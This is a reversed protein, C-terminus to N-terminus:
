FLTCYGVDQHLGKRKYTFTQMESMSTNYIFVVKNLIMLSLLPNLTLLMILAITM